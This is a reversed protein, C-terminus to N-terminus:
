PTPSLYAAICAASIAAQRGLAPTLAGQVLAKQKNLFEIKLQAIQNEISPDPCQQGGQKAM